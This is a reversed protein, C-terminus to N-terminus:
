AYSVVYYLFTLLCIFVIDIKHYKYQFQQNLKSYAGNKSLIRCFNWFYSWFLFSSEFFQWFKLFLFGWRKIVLFCFGNLNAFFYSVFVLKIKAKNRIFFVAHIWKGRELHLEDQSLVYFIDFHCSFLCTALIFFNLSIKKFHYPNIM